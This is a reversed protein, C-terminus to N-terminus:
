PNRAKTVFDTTKIILVTFGNKSELAFTPTSQAICGSCLIWSIGVDCIYIITCALQIEKIYNLDQGGDKIYILDQIGHLVLTLAVGFPLFIYSAV